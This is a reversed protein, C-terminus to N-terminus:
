KATHKGHAMDGVIHQIGLQVLAFGLNHGLGPLLSYHGDGGIHCATTGVDLKGGLNLCGATKSDNTGLPM